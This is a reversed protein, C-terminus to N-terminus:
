YYYNLAINVPHLVPHVVIVGDGPVEAASQSRALTGSRHLKATTGPPLLLVYYISDCALLLSMHSPRSSLPLLLTTHLNTCVHIVVPNCKPQYYYFFFFFYYLYKSLNAQEFYM